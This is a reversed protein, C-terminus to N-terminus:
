WTFERGRATGGPLLPRGTYQWTLVVVYRRGHPAQLDAPGCAQQVAFDTFMLADCRHPGAVVDDTAADRVALSVDAQVGPTAEVNGLVRIAGGVSHCPQALVPHGVDWTLKEGCRWPGFGTAGGEEGPRTPVDAGRPGDPRTV